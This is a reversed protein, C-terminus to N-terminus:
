HEKEVTNQLSQVVIASLLSLRDSVSLQSAKEKLQQLFM